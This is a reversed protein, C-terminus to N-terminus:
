CLAYCAFGALPFTAFLLLNYVVVGSLRGWLFWAAIASPIDWTQFWLRVGEPWWLLPTYMPSTGLRASEHWWWFGWYTQWPDTLDGGLRSGFDRALPWTFVVALAVYALLVLAHRRLGRITM